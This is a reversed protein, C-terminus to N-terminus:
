ASRWRDTVSRRYRWEPPDKPASWVRWPRLTLAQAKLAPCHQQETPKPVSRRGESAYGHMWLGLNQMLPQLIPYFSPRPLRIKLLTRRALTTKQPSPSKSPVNEPTPIDEFDTRGQSPGKKAYPPTAARNTYSDSRWGEGEWGSLIPFFRRKASHEGPLPDGPHGLLNSACTSSITATSATTVPNVSTTAHKRSFTSGM